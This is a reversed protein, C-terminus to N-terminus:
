QDSYKGSCDGRNDDEAKNKEEVIQKSTMFLNLRDSIVDSAYIKKDMVKRSRDHYVVRELMDEVEIKNPATITQKPLLPPSFLKTLLDLKKLNEITSSTVYVIAYLFFLFPSFRTFVNNSRSSSYFPKIM